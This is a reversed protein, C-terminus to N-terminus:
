IRIWAVVPRGEWFTRSVPVILRQILRRSALRWAQMQTESSEQSALAMVADLALTLVFRARVTAEFEPAM